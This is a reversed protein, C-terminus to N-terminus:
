IMIAIVSGMTWLLRMSQTIIREVFLGVIVELIAGLRLRRGLLRSLCVTVSEGVRIGLLLLVVRVRQARSSAGINHKPRRGLLMLFILLRRV